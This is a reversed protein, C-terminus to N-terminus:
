FNAGTTVAVNLQQEKPGLVLPGQRLGVGSPVPMMGVAAWRVADKDLITRGDASPAPDSAFLSVGTRIKEVAAGEQKYDYTGPVIMYGVGSLIVDHTQPM